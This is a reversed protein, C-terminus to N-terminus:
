PPPTGSAGQLAHMVDSVARTFLPASEVPRLKGSVLMATLAQPSLSHATSGQAPTFLYLTKHPSVWRLQVRESVDGQQLKFWQGRKMAAVMLAAADEDLDEDIPTPRETPAPVHVVKAENALIAQAVLEDPIKVVPADAAALSVAELEFNDLKIRMTSPEFTPAVSGHALELAKVAHAHSNMLKAFFEQIQNKPHDILVLGKRLLTLVPPISSVLRKRDDPNLKPQVSWVLDPVISLYTKVGAHQDPNKKDRLSVAVLVRPWVELLFERLYSEIQVGDFASRIRITANIAMVERNEAEALAHKARTVPDDDRAREDDLYREFEDLANVFAQVTGEEDALVTQIVKRVEILYRANEEGEVTWGISTSAIRDILQRAPHDNSAFLEPDTLAVKILPFQLRQLLEKIAQPVYRDRNVRDFVLGVIEITLKDIQKPAKDLLKNRLEASDIAADPAPMGRQAAALAMAGLKQIENIASLLGADILVGSAAIAGGGAPLSMGPMQPSLMSPMGITPAPLYRGVTDGMSTQPPPMHPIGPVQGYGPMPAVYGSPPVLHMRQYMAQLMQEANVGSAFMPGTTMPGGIGTNGWGTSRGGTVTNRGGGIVTNRGAVAVRALDSSIGKSALHRDVAAYAQSMPEVFALDFRTMLILLNEGTVGVVKLAAHVARLVIAPRFPNEADRLEPERVLNAVRKKVSSYTDDVANRIRASGSEIATKFEMEGYEILSMEKQPGAVAVVKHEVFEAVATKFEEQFSSSFTQIFLRDRGLVQKAPLAEEADESRALGGLAELMIDALNPELADRLQVWCDQLLGRAGARRSVQRGPHVASELLSRIDSSM